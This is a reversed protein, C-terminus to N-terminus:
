QRRYRPGVLVLVGFSSLCLGAMIALGLRSDDQAAPLLVLLLPTASIAILISAVIEALVIFLLRM